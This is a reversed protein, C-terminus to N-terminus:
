LVALSYDDIGLIGEVKMKKVINKFSTEDKCANTLKVIRKHFNVHRLGSMVKLFTSNKTRLNIAEDLEEDFETNGMRQRSIEYLALIAHSLADSAAFVTCSSSTRFIGTRFGNENLPDKSNILFPPKNFDALRTFSHQLLGTSKDYCFVVSDGYTMWRCEEDSVRWAAALTAFSGEDYFKDLFMGGQQKAKEECTKYFSEWIGDIWADLEAFRTLPTEPLNDLLYRSWCEAHVGGGGAGDSVAIVNTRALAADENIEMTDFDKSVSVCATKRM